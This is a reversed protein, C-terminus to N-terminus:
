ERGAPHHEALQHLFDVGAPLFNNITLGPVAGAPYARFNAGYL